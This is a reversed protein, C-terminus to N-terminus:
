AQDGRRLGVADEIREALQNLGVGLFAGVPVVEFALSIGERPDRPHRDLYATPMEGPNPEVLTRYVAYPGFTAAGALASAANPYARVTNV